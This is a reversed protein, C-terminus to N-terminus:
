RGLLEEFPNLYEPEREFCGEGGKGGDPRRKIDAFLGRALAELLGIRAIDALLNEAKALVEAARAALRGGPKADLERGLGAATTMIYRAGELALMRDQLLPTHLAETLIGCLHITQGTMVSALDFMADLRYGLFVDGTMHKTPPMFKIPAKPFVQRILQAQALEMLFGDPLAPDIEFAHGLGMLAESLGAAHAFSENIFQSALVTHAAEVADATTLYNDEGTNIIIRAEACIRRSFHQDVFTRLPNIDRFIIGYMSDNLLMDLREVAALAAIEPMCLGSAYNVLRVYRGLTESAADLAARMLRFNERTAYTGGFGETTAGHPVFDLLSQATSRIVAICDAGSEAASVAQEIDHHINGTAVIVYLWPRDAPPPHREILALRRTRAEAVRALAQESLRRATQAVHPELLADRSPPALEGGALGECLEQVPRGTRDALAAVARAAGCGLLGAERLRTVAANPVPVEDGWLGDAGWLRLVTREVSDTSRREIQALLPATIRGALERCHAVRSEDIALQM